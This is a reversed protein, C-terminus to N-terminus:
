SRAAWRWCLGHWLTSPLTSLRGTIRALLHMSYRGYKRSFTLERPSSNPVWNAIAADVPHHRKLFLRALILRRKEASAALLSSHLWIGDRSPRMWGMPSPTTAAVEFWRRTSLPLRKLEGEAAESLDCQFWTQALLFAVSEFRRLEEDHTGIWGNWFEENKSNRNLFWALEYVQSTVIVCHLLDRLLNLSLYGLSDILSLAPFKMGQVEREVRRKWFNGVAKPGCQATARDWFCHHLEVAPPM